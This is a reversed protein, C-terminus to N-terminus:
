LVSQIRQTSQEAQQDGGEVVPVGEPMGEVASPQMALPGGGLEEDGPKIPPLGIAKKMATLNIKGGNQVVFQGGEILQGVNPTDIDFVHRPTPEGPYSWRHVVSVFDRTLSASLLLASFKVVGSFTNAHLSAEGENLGGGTDMTTGAQGLIMRRIVSDYYNTILEILLNVSATGPQINQIPPFSPGGSDPNSPWLLYPKGQSELVRAEVEIRHTDNGAEYYLVTLGQAFWRLFDALLGTFLNKAAWFWYLRHRLGIGQVAGAMIGKAFPADELLYRHVLIRQREAPAFYHVYGPGESVQTPAHTMSNVRIGVTGDFKFVLKDGEIPCWGVPIIGRRGDFRSTDWRYIMQSGHRGYWDAELLSRYLAEIDLLKRCRRETAAASKVWAENDPDEAELHWPLLAISRQRTELPEMVVPDLRMAYANPLNDRSAEDFLHSYQNTAYGFIASFTEQHPIVLGFGGAPLQGLTPAIPVPPAPAQTPDM